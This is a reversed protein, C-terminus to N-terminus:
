SFDVLRVRHSAVDRETLSVFPQRVDLRLARSLLAILNLDFWRVFRRPGTRTGRILLPIAALAWTIAALPVLIWLLTGRITLLALGRLM